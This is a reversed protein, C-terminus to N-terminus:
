SIYILGAAYLDVQFIRSLGIGHPRRSLTNLDDFEYQGIRKKLETRRLARLAVKKLVM